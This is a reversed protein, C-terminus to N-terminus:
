GADEGVVDADMMREDDGRDAIEVYREEGEAAVHRVRFGWCSGSASNLPLGQRPLMKEAHYCSRRTTAAEARLLLGCKHLSVSSRESVM